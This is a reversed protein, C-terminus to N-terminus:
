AASDASDALAQLILRAAAPFNDVVEDDPGLHALAPTLDHGTRVLLSARCGANRGALLDCVGDGVIWSRAVDLGLDRAARLLMGPGPKRDPHEIVTKDSGRPALPCHYIADVMAGAGALQRRFEAHVGELEAETMMGRGVASQNTVVVCALGAARLERLADAVGPLLRVQEPRALYSVEEILSGDRDLFVAPRLCDSMHRSGITSEHAVNSSVCVGLAGLVGPHRKPARAICPLITWRNVGVDSTYGM